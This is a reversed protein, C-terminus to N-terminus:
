WQCEVGLQYDAWDWPRTYGRWLTDVVQNLTASGSNFSDKPWPTNVYYAERYEQLTGISQVSGDARTANVTRNGHGGFPIMPTGIACMAVVPNTKKKPFLQTMNACGIRGNNGFVTGTKFAQPVRDARTSYCGNVRATALGFAPMATATPWQKTTLRSLNNGIAANNLIQTGAGYQGPVNAAATDFDPDIVLRPDSFYGLHFLVGFDYFVSNPSIPQGPVNYYDALHDGLPNGYWGANVSTQGEWATKFFHPWRYNSDSMYLSLSLHRQKHINACVTVRSTFVAQEVSPLLLAALVSVIAVVIILEVLTFARDRSTDNVFGSM